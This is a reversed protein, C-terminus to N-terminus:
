LTVAVDIPRIRAVMGMSVTRSAMASNRALGVTLVSAPASMDKRPSAQNILVPSRAASKRWPM